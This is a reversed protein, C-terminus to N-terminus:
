GREEKRGEHLLQLSGTSRRFVRSVVIETFDVVSHYSAIGRYWKSVDNLM